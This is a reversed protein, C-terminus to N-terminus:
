HPIPRPMAEDCPLAAFRWALPADTESIVRDFCRSWADGPRSCSRNLPTRFFSTTISQVSTVSLATNKEIAVFLVPIAPYENLEPPSRGDSLRENFKVLIAIVLVAFSAAPALVGVVM